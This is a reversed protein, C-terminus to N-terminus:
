EESYHRTEIWNDLYSLPLSFEDDQELDVDHKEAIAKMDKMLMRGYERGDWSHRHGALASIRGEAEVIERAAAVYNGPYNHPIYGWMSDVVGIEDDSLRLERGKALHSRVEEVTSLVKNIYINCSSEDVYDPMRDCEGVYYDSLASDILSAEHCAQFYVMRAVRAGVHRHPTEKLWVLMQPIEPSYLENLHAPESTREIGLQRTDPLYEVPVSGISQLQWILRALEVVWAGTGQQKERIMPNDELPTPEYEFFLGALVGAASDRGMNMGMLRDAQCLTFECRQEVGMSSVAEIDIDKFFREKLVALLEGATMKRIDM